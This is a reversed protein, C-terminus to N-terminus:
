KSAAREFVVVEGWYGEGAEFAKPREDNLGGNRIKLKDGQLEYIGLLEPLEHGDAMSLKVWDVRKPSAKEDIKVEGEALLKLGLTSVTASVTKDKIQLSITVEKKAGVKTTWCGQLRAMDGELAPNAGGSGLLLALPILAAKALM